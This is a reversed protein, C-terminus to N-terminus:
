SAAIQELNILFELNFKYNTNYIELPNILQM